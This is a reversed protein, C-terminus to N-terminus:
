PGLLRPPLSLFGAQMGWANPVPSPVDDGDEGRVAQRGARRLRLCVQTLVHDSGKLPRPAQWSTPRGSLALLPVADALRLIQDYPAHPDQYCM